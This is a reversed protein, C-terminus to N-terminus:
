VIFDETVDADDLHIQLSFQTGLPCQFRRLQIYNDQETSEVSQLNEGSESLLSLTLNAPLLTGDAPHLQVGIRVRGDVEPELVMLLVVTQPDPQTTLEILKGRTVDEGRASLASRFSLVLGGSGDALAELTQWGAEARQQFWQSLRVLITTLGAVSGLQQPMSTMLPSLPAVAAQTQADPCFQLTVGFANLDQTLEQAALCYTRDNPDYNAITKLDQHTTYGWVRLWQSQLHELLYEPSAEPLQSLKVQVALYYDSAWDTDVWEQPVELESGDIAESPLFVLRKTGLAIATGNVVDGIAPMPANSWAVADAAYEAQLWPLIVNLCIYNLYANWRSSPTAYPQSQQWAAEQVAPSVELWWETPDAFAFIM